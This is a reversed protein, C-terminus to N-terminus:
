DLCDDLNDLDGDGNKNALGFVIGNEFVLKLINVFGDSYAFVGIM